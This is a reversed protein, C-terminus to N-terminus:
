VHLKEKYITVPPGRRNIIPAVIDFPFNPFELTLYVGDPHEDTLDTLDCTNNGHFSSM